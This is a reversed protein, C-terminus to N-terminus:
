RVKEWRGKIYKWGEREMVEWFKLSPIFFPCGRNPDIKGEKIYNGLLCTQLNDCYGCVYGLVKQAAELHQPCLPEVEVGKKPKM